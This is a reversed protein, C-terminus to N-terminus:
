GVGACHSTRSRSSAARQMFTNDAKATIIILTGVYQEMQYAALLDLLLQTERPENFGKKVINLLRFAKAGAENRHKGGIQHDLSLGLSEELLHAVVRQLPYQLWLTFSATIVHPSLVNHLHYLFPVQLPILFPHSIHLFSSFEIIRIFRM